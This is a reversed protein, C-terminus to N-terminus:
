LSNWAIDSEVRQMGCSQVRENCIRLGAVGAGLLFNEHGRRGRKHRLRRRLWRPVVFGEDQAPRVVQLRPCMGCRPCKYSRVPSSRCLLVLNERWGHTVDEAHHTQVGAHFVGQGRAHTVGKGAEDPENEGFCILDGGQWEGGINVNLTVESNDQHVSLARDGGEEASYLVSFSRQSDLGKAPDVRHPFLVKALPDLAFRVLDDMLVSLGLERMVVGHHLMTNPRSCPIGSKRFHCLEDCLMDCFMDTFVPFVYVGACPRQVRVLVEELRGPSDYCERSRHALSRFSEHLWEIRFGSWLAEHKRRYHSSINQELRAAESVHSFRQFAQAQVDLVAADIADDPVGYDKLDSQLRMVDGDFDVHLVQSPLFFNDTLSCLCRVSVARLSPPHWDLPDRRRADSDLGSAVAALM